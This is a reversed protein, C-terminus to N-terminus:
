LPKNSSQLTVFMDLIPNNWDKAAMQYTDMQYNRSVANGDVEVTITINM